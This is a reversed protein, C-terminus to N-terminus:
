AARAAQLLDKVSKGGKKKSCSCGGPQGQGGEGETLLRSEYQALVDAEMIRNEKGFDIAERLIEKFEPRIKGSNELESSGWSLLSQLAGASAMGGATKLVNLVQRLIAEPVQSPPQGGQAASASGSAAQSQEVGPGSDEASGFNPDTGWSQLGRLLPSLAGDAGDPESAEPSLSSRDVPLWSSQQAQSDGAGGNVSKPTSGQVQPSWSSQPNHFVETRQPTRRPATTSLMDLNM